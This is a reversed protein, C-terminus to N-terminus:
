LKVFKVQVVEQDLRRYELVYTGAPLSRVDFSSRNSASQTQYTRLKIGTLSYINVQAITYLQPHYLNLVDTVPNPYIILNTVTKGTVAITRQTAGASQLTVEGNHDGTTSANLRIWVTRSTVTGASQEIVLPTSTTFWNVANVSVEYGAPPTVTISGTLNAGAVTFSQRASPTGLTQSFPQLNQTVTIVPQNVTTGTVNVNVTAAGTSVHSIVGAYAGASTANLRVSITTAALTGGAPTLVLTSPATIWTTGGDNSIQYNAPPTITVNGTLNAGSVQYTQVASATGATQTFATLTGTTTIVPANVAVGTVAVNQTSAGASAHVINGNYNGATSANLRVSITTAALTGGTATLVLPSSNTAWTTGGNASVEYGAPPTVTVNGTLFSGSLSYTQVASPAGVTQAFATLTATVTLSSAAAVGTVAVNRTAAGASEHTINGAYTGASGANLRVSITTSAVVGAAPTLVLTSPATIWTTGGNASVEYGAPPTIIINGTLDQGSVTYTQVSSPNGLAQTFANLSGTTIITPTTVIVPTVEGTVRVDKLMGYRGNSSSGCSFYMRFTITQGPQLTVGGTSLVSLAYSSTTASTQNPLSIPNVFGGPITYVDASDNVFNSLSYVVALRTNSNTNYFASTVYISDVRVQHNSNATVTFQEYFNRRLTGGPGGSATGWSGDGNATAGFAQGFTASYAPVLAVTTGNSVYLNQMTPTSAIVGASRTAADDNANETLPWYQLSVTTVPAVNDRTGTVPVLVTTAGPSTLQIDGTYTGDSAANLRVMLTTAALTNAAPTLVLPSANSFWTTGGDASVQYSPPPTVTVNGLMNEGSVTLNQAASPTSQHQVFAQLTGTAYLTPTSSIEITDTIHSAFGAKSGVLYYFASSGVAPIADTLQFNVATDNTATVSAVVSYTGNRSSSRYLDYRIQDKAWSINWDFTTLATGKAGRFNSIAIDRAEYSCVSAAVACPNWSDFINANTYAAAETPTLQFSWPARSSTNVLSGNFYRSQYEGYYILSTNTTADWTSWGEPRINSNLVSQLFVTKNNAVPSSSTTNQWPRGLFYTTTGPHAPLLCNRFIYGYTQGAPTNPATIYSSGTVTRAKAYVVTSDFVAVSSGFIFDVNGDIYCDKFYHRPTGNGKTYLTDQNGLFRCNKFVARDANVLVAVAQSGDGFTNAFTINFASFDNANVTFSASNQTGLTGGGPAPTSAADDYYLITNAVSEGILQLFPKNSPITIKEKYKGNKIYIIYPATLGTPAADIAAQVTTFDGSGDKAVIVATGPPVTSVTASGSVTVNVTTAGTSAHSISGSYSGQSGANLRVSVTTAALVGAAPALVLPSSNTAWTTGGNASVEYGAPPTVTVNGSLDTAAVTYTQVASPAGITQQFASLSATATITPQATSVATTSGKFFVDKVKAYRAASTTGCSFYLRVTLTEGPQLAVGSTGAIALSYNDPNGATTRNKLLVPNAFTAADAGLTGDPGVGGGAIDTSDSVFGTRSYVVAFRTNTATNYFAANLVLSDIRVRHSSKATVTFQEYYSRNLNGGPGGAAASWLGDGAADAGFAQGHLSSYAPVTALQTGNSLYLNRFTPTSAEVGASREAALDTANTTLPWYILKDSAGGGAPDTVVGTVPIAVAAAGISSHQINGDFTGAATANLRISITTTAVIGSSATLILPNSNTFWTTGGNASVEYGAPPTVTIGTTLDTGAVTYTQVSSPAGTTQTFAALNSTTTIAAASTSNTFFNVVDAGAFMPVITRVVGPAFPTYSYYSRPDFIAGPNMEDFKISRGGPNLMASNIQATIVPLESDDYANNFQKLGTCPINGTKSTFVNDTNNGYVARFDALTRDAYMPWRTNLFFNGEAVVKAENAAAIGYLLVREELNNLVHVEGFRVRPNRSNTHYFHNGFYTVKLRGRDENGNNDSHGVLGTKWSNRYKCWSITIYSAGGKIDIGGDPHETNTPMTTPHGITCHDVWIHHTGTEGINIGDDYYDQFTINRILINWSRKINIGFNLVVNSEGMITLDGQDEITLMHNNFVSASPGSGTYTGAKLIITLPAFRATGNNVQNKYARIRDYLLITLKNFDAEGNVWLTDASNQGGTTPGNFRAYETTVVSAFGVPTSFDPSVGGTFTATVTKNGNMTVTTSTVSGTAAGSWSQFVSGLVPAATLTVVTGEAYEGGAPSLTVQGVGNTIVTVKYTAVTKFNATITKNSNMVVQVPNVTGTLDGSWNEFALNARGEALLTITEGQFYVNNTRAPTVSVTGNNTANLALTFAPCRDGSLSLKDLNPGDTEEWTIKIRNMGTQLSVMAIEEAWDTFQPTRPFNLFQVFVDNVFLSGIRIDDKALSYRFKATRVGAAEQCVNFVIYNEGGALFDVFGTGTYGSHQNDVKGTFEADEAQYDYYTTSNDIATVTVTWTKTSGDQATVTYTVPASFNRAVSPLPSITAGASLSISVPVLSTLSVTNPVILSITGAASNISAQGVQDNTLVFGTIEKADSQMETVKVKWTRATTGDQATVTYTVEAGGSFNQAVSPLPSITALPSIEISSPVVATLPTGATVQINVTGLDNDIVETGIQGPIKFATIQAETSPLVSGQVLLDHIQINGNVPELRISIAGASVLVPYLSTLDFAAANQVVLTSTVTTYDAEGAKKYKVAVNRAAAGTSKMNAKFVSCAGVDVQLFGGGSNVQIAGMTCVGDAAKTPSIAGNSTVGAPLTTSQFNFDILTNQTRAVVSTLLLIFISLVYRSLRSVTHVTVPKM